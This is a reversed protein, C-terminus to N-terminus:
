PKKRLHGRATPWSTSGGLPWPRCLWASRPVPQLSRSVCPCGRAESGCKKRRRADSNCLSRLGWRDSSLGAAGRQRSESSCHFSCELCLISLFCGIKVVWLMKQTQVASCSLSAFLNKSREREKGKRWSAILLVAGSAPSPQPRAVSHHGSHHQAPPTGFFAPCTIYSGIVYNANCLAPSFARQLGAETDIANQQHTAEALLHLRVKSEAGTTQATRVSLWVTPCQVGRYRSSSLAPCCCIRCGLCPLLM